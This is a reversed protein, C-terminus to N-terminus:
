FVNLKKTVKYHHRGIFASFDLKCHTKRSIFNEISDKM